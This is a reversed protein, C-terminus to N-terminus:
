TLYGAACTLLALLTYLCSILAFLTGLNPPRKPKAAYPRPRPQAAPRRVPPTIDVAPKKDAVHPPLTTM